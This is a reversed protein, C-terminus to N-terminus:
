RINQTPAEKFFLLGVPLFVLICVVLSILQIFIATKDWGAFTCIGWIFSYPFFLIDIIDSQFVKDSALYGFLNGLLLHGLACLFSITWISHRIRFKEV